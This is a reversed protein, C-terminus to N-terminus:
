KKKDSIVPNILLDSLHLYYDKIKVTLEDPGIIRIDNKPTDAIKQLVKTTIYANDVTYTCKGRPDKIIPGSPLGFMNYVTNLYPARCKLIVKGKYFLVDDEYNIIEEPQVQNLIGKIKDAEPDKHKFAIKIESILDFDVADVRNDTNNYGIM